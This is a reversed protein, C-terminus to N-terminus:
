NKLKNAQRRPTMATWESLNMERRGQRVDRALLWSVPAVQAYWPWVTGNSHCDNCSRQLISAVPQPAQLEKAPDVPTNTRAPRIFQAVILLVVLILLIRKLM